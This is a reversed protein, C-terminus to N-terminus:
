NKKLYKRRWDFNWSYAHMCALVPWVDGMKMLIFSLPSKSCKLSDYSPTSDFNWFTWFFMRPAHHKTSLTSIVRASLDCSSANCTHKWIHFLSNLGNLVTIFMHVVKYTKTLRNCPEYRKQMCQLAEYDVAFVISASWKCCFVFPRAHSRVHPANMEVHGHLRRAFSLCLPHHICLEKYGQYQGTFTYSVLAFVTQVYHVVSHVSSIKLSNLM